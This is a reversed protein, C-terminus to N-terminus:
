RSHSITWIGVRTKMQPFKQPQIEDAAFLRLSRGPREPLLHMEHVGQGEALVRREFPQEGRNLFAIIRPNENLPFDWGGATMEGTIIDMRSDGDLDVLEL